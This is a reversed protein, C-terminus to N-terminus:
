KRASRIMENWARRADSESEGRAERGCKSCVLAVGKPPVYWHDRRKSGCICPLLSERKKFAIVNFGLEKLGEKIDEQTVKRGTDIEWSRVLKVIEKSIDNM